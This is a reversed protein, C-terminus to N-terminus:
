DDKAVYGNDVEHFNKFEGNEDYNVMLKYPYCHHLENEDGIIRDKM